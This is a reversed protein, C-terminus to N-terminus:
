VMADVKRLHKCADRAKPTRGTALNPNLRPLCFNRNAPGDAKLKIKPLGGTELTNCPIYYFLLPQYPTRATGLSLCGDGPHTVAKPEAVPSLQGPIAVNPCISGGTATRPNNKGM